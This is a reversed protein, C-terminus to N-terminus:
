QIECDKSKALMYEELGEDEEITLDIPNFVTNGPTDLFKEWEEWTEEKTWDAKSWDLVRKQAEV